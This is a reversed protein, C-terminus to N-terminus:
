EDTAETLADAIEGYTLSSLYAGNEPDYRKIMATAFEDNGSPEYVSRGREGTHSFLMHHGYKAALKEIIDERTM